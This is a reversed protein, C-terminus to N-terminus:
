RISRLKLDGSVTSVDLRRGGNGIRAEINRHSMRTGGLTMKYDSDIDGSVTSMSLDADFAAPLELTIDGSVTHFSLDNKGAFADARVDIDGSVTQVRLGNPRVRDLEVDGSVSNVSIDGQAGTVSIDGSVSNARVLLNSPVAVELAISAGRWDDHNNWHRHNGQDDCSNDDRSVVCITVGDSHEDVQVHIRDADDRDGRRRGTVDVRGSTSPVIKIDDNINEVRVTQGAPVAKSWHFDGTQAAAPLAAAAVLAPVALCRLGRTM